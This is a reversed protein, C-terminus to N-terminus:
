RKQLRRKLRGLSGRITKGYAAELENIRMNRKGIEERLEEVDRQWHEIVEYLEEEYIQSQAKEQIKINAQDSSHQRYELFVGQVKKGKWGAAIMRKFLNYDEPETGEHRYSGGADVYAKRRYMSTGHMFSHPGSIAEETFEPFCIRYRGEDLIGGRREPLHDEYVEKARSGFLIYDTYAIAVNPNENLTRSTYEIYKPELRDDSALICVYDGKSLDMAKNFTAVIGLNEKNQAFRILEPYRSEYERCILATDDSSGDDILLVEDPRVTQSLVSEISERLFQGRNYSPILISITKPENM